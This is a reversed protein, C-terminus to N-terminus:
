MVDELAFNEDEAMARRTKKGILKEIEYPPLGDGPSKIAVDKMAVVHGEPLAHAVVLKKGM